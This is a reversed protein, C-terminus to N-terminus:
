RAPLLAKVPPRLRRHLPLAIVLLLVLFTVLFGAPASCGPRSNLQLM